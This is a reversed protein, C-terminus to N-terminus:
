CVKYQEKPTLGMLDSDLYFFEYPKVVLIM